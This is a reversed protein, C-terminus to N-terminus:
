PNRVYRDPGSPHYGNDRLLAAMRDRGVPNMTVLVVVPPLVRPWIRGGAVEETMLQKLVEHGDIGDGLDHDMYLVSIHKALARAILVGNEGTRAIVAHEGAFDRQDDIYLHM